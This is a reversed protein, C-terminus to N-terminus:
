KCGAEDTRGHEREDEALCVKILHILQRNVSRESRDCLCRFKEWLDINIRLTFQKEQKM